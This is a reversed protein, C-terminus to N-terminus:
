ARDARRRDISSASRVVVVVRAETQEAVNGVTVVEASEAGSRRLAPRSAALESEAQEGKLALLRGGSHLLPLTWTALRDLPAVARAVVADM